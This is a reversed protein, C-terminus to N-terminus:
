ASLSDDLNGDRAPLVALMRDLTKRVTMLMLTLDFPKELLTTERVIVGLSAIYEDTYGSMYIVELSQNTELLKAAVRGGNIDPLVVDTLVLDIRDGYHEAIDIGSAGDRAELVRYGNARLADAVLTRLAEEDEVVLITEVGRLDRPPLDSIAMQEPVRTTIPLYILFSTGVGLESEVFIHGMNQKIIKHVTSLGLGTGRGPGKTTFFPEFIRSKTAHDMGCGTDSVGLMVYGDRAVISTQIILEGGYPMADRANAILNILIQEIEAPDAETPSLEPALMLTLAVNEGVMRLLMQELNLVISNLNLPITKTLEKRNLDLLQRTFIAARETAIGIQLAYHRGNEDAALREGLLQSYGAIVALANKFDHAVGGALRGVAELKQAHLFESRLQLQQTIDFFTVVTGIVDFDYYIPHTWYEVPFETGDVRSFRENDAHEIKGTLIAQNIKSESFSGVAGGMRSHYHRQHIVKGVLDSAKEYGFLLAAARNSFTCIGREELAFIGEQAANLLSVYQAEQKQLNREFLKQLSIDVHMVMAGHSGSRKLPIVTVRFWQPQELWYRPYEFVFEQLDGALVSRIGALADMARPLYEERPSHYSSLYNDGVGFGPELTGDHCVQDRWSENVSVVAGKSDIVAAQFPMADFAVTKARSRYLRHLKKNEKL